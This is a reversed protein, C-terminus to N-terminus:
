LLVLLLSLSHVKFTNHFLVNARGCLIKISLWKNKDRATPRLKVKSGFSQISRFCEQKLTEWFILLHKSTFVHCWHCIHYVIVGNYSITEHISLSIYAVPVVHVVKTTEKLRTNNTYKFTLNVFHHRNLSFPEYCFWTATKQNSWVHGKQHAGDRSTEVEQGHLHSVVTISSM